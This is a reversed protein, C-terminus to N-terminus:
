RCLDESVDEQFYEYRKEILSISITRQTLNLDFPSPPVPREVVHRKIPTAGKVSVPIIAGQGVIKETGEVYMRDPVTRIKWTTVKKIVRRKVPSNSNPSGKRKSM